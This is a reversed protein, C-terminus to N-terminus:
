PIMHKARGLTGGFMTPIFRAEAKSLHAQYASFSVGMKKALDTQTTRRPFEYYGNEVALRMANTQRETLEPQLSIISVNQIKKQRFEVIGSGFRNRFTNAVKMLPDKTVDCPPSSCTMLTFDAGSSMGALGM